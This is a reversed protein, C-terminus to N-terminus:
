FPELRDVARVTQPGLDSRVQQGPDFSSVNGIVFSIMGNPFLTVENEGYGVMTPLDFRRHSASGTFPNFHFGMQYYEAGEPRPDSITRTMAADGTKLLANRSALLDATLAANLLQRAGFRGHNQYLLAIKALDDLSPFFGANFWITGERGDPERTRVAPAHFIGIPAFVEDILMRWIDADPGRVSKLFADLATGLLFFDQDRYRMVTGPEWPYPKWGSVKAIKDARSRATYWGEYDGDTYGDLSNNPNTKLTGTGGLGSSMNAADIFRVRQWKPDLGGVYDGIRLNLVWPGYTEALRLLSLPAGVSKMISRVGFRMELPYPFPGFPTPAEQYFLTGGRLLAAQVRHEPVLPGGFGDLSGAPVGALLEKWPRAPLRRGLEEGARARDADITKASLAGVTLRAAGWAVFPRGLLYPANQQPFQFVLGSVERGRYLFMALGQHADNDTDNVLMLPFAARSWGADRPDRWIRGVQPIVRWFSPVTPESEHVMEGRQVPVLKDGLTYFDLTVGPFRRADRGDQMPKDIAPRTKLPAAQIGLRGTFDPARMAHVGPAFLGNDVPSESADAKLLLSAPLGQDMALALAPLLCLLAAVVRQRFTACNAM